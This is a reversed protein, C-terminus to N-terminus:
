RRRSNDVLGRQIATMLAQARNSAGLKGYIKAVHTKTTSESIFLASSIGAVGLGEALLNLVEQERTTLLAHEARNREAEALGEAVFKDPRAAAHRIASVVNQAPADKSVFASASASRARLLHADDGYMTLM